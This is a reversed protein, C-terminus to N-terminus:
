RSFQACHEIVVGENKAGLGRHKFGDTDHLLPTKFLIQFSVLGSHKSLMLWSVCVPSFINEHLNFCIKKKGSFIILSFGPNMYLIHFWAM